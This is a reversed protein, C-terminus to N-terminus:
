MAEDMVGAAPSVARKRRRGDKPKSPPAAPGALAWCAMMLTDALDPSRGIRRQIDEKKEIQILGDKDQQYAAATAEEKLVELAPTDLPLAPHHGQDPAIRVGFTPLGRDTKGQLLKAMTWHAEARLNKYREPRRLMVKREAGRFEIVRGGYGWNRLNDVVGGGVGDGDIVIRSGPQRDLREKAQESTTTTDQGVVIHDVRFQRHQICSFVTRDGGSRAVDLSWLEIDDGHRKRDSLRADAQRVAADFVDGPLVANEGQEPWIGEVRALWLPTGEGYDRKRDELWELSPLVDLLEQSVTEGTFAPTDRVSIAHIDWGGKDIIAKWRSAPNRPNGFAILQNHRGTTLSMIQEWVPASIGDAEDVIVILRKAHQGVLTALSTDSVSRGMAVERGDITWVPVPGRTIYGPLGLERHLERAPRMINGLQAATPSVIAVLTDDGQSTDGAWDLIRAAVASKGTGHGSPVGILRNGDRISRLIDRQKSWLELHHHDVWALPDTRYRDRALDAIAADAISTPAATAM